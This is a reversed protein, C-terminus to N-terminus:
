PDGLTTYGSFFIKTPPIASRPDVFSIEFIKGSSQQEERYDKSASPALLRPLFMGREEREAKKIERAPM